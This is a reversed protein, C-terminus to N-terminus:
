NELWNKLIQRGYPTMISEPHYQVAKLDYKRHKISMIIGEKSTSTPVLEQPLNRIEWSFYLGVEFEKPVGIYITDNETHTISTSLGHMVQDLPFLKAKFLKAIAQQGLCIGLISKTAYYKKLFPMLQGANKPLGSGPSIIIKHFSDIKQYDITDNRMVTVKCGLAELYHVLNYTFSDYNDIVLVPQM